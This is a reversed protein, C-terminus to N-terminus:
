PSRAVPPRAPAGPVQERDAEPGPAEEPRPEVGGAGRPGRGTDGDGPPSDGPQVIRRRMVRVAHVFSLRDPDERARGAAEHILRRVAHHALMLGEIEQRVLAPTKSRLRAGPGLIHTKVEDYALEAEWREHYLAALEAAPARVHDTLTTALRAPEGGGGPMRYAVVRVPREGRTGRRDRGLGRFRSRWSGDPLAELVPLDLDRRVRWLLEAGTGEALRWLPFGGYGRDALVLMGPSLRGLLAEAQEQEGERLPGARWAFAARTGLEVAMTLRAQPFASGGRSSGPVGFAERNGAEDALNLTTGDLGVLRLGRYWAGATGAEALPAVCREGLAAFPEAGLRARARSISSKGAVRPALGPSALRLGDMLCRLVEGTSVSRFLAMAIVHYVAVEAPLDRRRRSERGGARLAERVAERPYFRAIVNVSLYDSLRAGGPLSASTRAM